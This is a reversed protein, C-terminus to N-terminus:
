TSFPRELSPEPGEAEALARRRAELVQAFCDSCREWTYFRLRERGSAVLERRLGEDVLLRVLGDRISGPQRPDVLVAADGAVEPLSTTTSTLVPTECAFADLIPLGFGENLSPYCLAAGGSLLAPLDAEDAFGHLLVHDMVARGRVQERFRSLAPEQIGVLLLCHSEQVARPLAQWAKLINLTNKRPDDAGFGFVYPKDPPLAYKQRVRKLGAADTVRRLNGDPAWPNVTIKENPIDLRAVLQRKSYESPTVLHRAKRAAATVRGLWSRTSPADPNMELPILDHVTVVMPVLPHVPGTNAPCHLASAGATWAALPLRVQEWLNLRRGGKIEIRRHELNPVGALPDESVDDQHFLVFRWDPRLRALRRYLDVLNKGTGRRQSRYVQRGDVAILM